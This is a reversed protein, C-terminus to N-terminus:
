AEIGRLPIIAQLKLTKVKAAMCHTIM